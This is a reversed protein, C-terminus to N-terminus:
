RLLRKGVIWNIVGAADKPTWSAGAVPRTLNTRGEASLFSKLTQPPQKGATNPAEDILYRERQKADLFVVVDSHQVDYTLLQGTWWDRAPPSDEPVKEYSAGFFKWIASISSAPGTLTAWDSPAPRFLERYAALRAPTDRQPDITLQVFVVDSAHGAASAQRALAVFNAALLPCIEQCLTMSSGLVVVKGRLASLTTRRGASDTLPLNLVSGPVPSNVVSGLNESPAPPGSSGCSALLACVTVAAAAAM